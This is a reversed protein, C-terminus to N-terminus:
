TNTLNTPINPAESFMSLIDLMEQSTRKALTVSEPSITQKERQQKKKAADAADKEERAKRLEEKYSLAKEDADKTNKASAKKNYDQSAKNAYASERMQVNEM